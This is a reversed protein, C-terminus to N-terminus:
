TAPSRAALADNIRKAAAEPTDPADVHVFLHKYRNGTLDVVLVADDRAVYDFFVVDGHYLFTGGMKFGPVNSGLLKLSEWFSPPKTTSAGSVNALPLHFSGHVTWVFVDMRSLEVHLTDADVRVTAM